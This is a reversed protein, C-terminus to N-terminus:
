NFICIDSESELQFYPNRSKSSATKALNHLVKQIGGPILPQVKFLEKENDNYKTKKDQRHCSKLPKQQPKRM